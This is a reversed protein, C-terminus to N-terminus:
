RERGLLRLLLLFLNIFDLYLTLAGLIALKGFTEGDRQLAPDKAMKAIKQTDYATLGTFIVVGVISVILDLGSSRFVLNLLMTIVLGFLGVILYTGVKTLDVNTVFGVFTMTGFLATAGAFTVAISGLEYVFFIGALSFGLMGAYVLFMLTAVSASLKKIAASLVIVLVLEGILAGWVVFPNVLLRTLFPTTVTLLAVITTLLVGITMWLYVRRLLPRIQVGVEVAQVNMADQTM